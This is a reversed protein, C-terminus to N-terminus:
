HTRLRSQLGLLTRRATGLETATEEVWALLDWSGATSGAQLRLAFGDPSFFQTDENTIASAPVGTLVNRYHKATLASSADVGFTMTGTPNSVALRGFSTLSRVFVNYTAPLDGSYTLPTNGGQANTLTAVSGGFGNDVFIGFSNAGTTTITGLNSITAGSGRVRIGHADNGSTTITGSNTITANVRYSVVGDSYSGSTTITGSNTITADDGFSAIGVRYSFSTAICGTNTVTDTPV